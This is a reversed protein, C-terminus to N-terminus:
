SGARRSLKCEKDGGKQWKGLQFYGAPCYTTAIVKIGTLSRQLGRVDTQNCWVADVEFGLKVAAVPLYRRVLHAADEGNLNIIMLRPLDKSRM